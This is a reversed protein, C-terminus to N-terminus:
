ILVLLPHGFPIHYKDYLGHSTPSSHISYIFKIKTVNIDKSM